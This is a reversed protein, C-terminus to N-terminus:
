LSFCVSSMSVVGMSSLFMAWLTVLLSDCCCACCDLSSCLSTPTSSHMRQESFFRSVTKLGQPWTTEQSAQPDRILFHKIHRSVTEDLSFTLQAISKNDVNRSTKWRKLDVLTKDARISLCRDEELWAPVHNSAIMARGDHLLADLAAGGDFLHNRKLNAASRRSGDRLNDMVVIVM